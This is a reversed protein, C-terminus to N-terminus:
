NDKMEKRTGKKKEKWKRKNEGAEEIKRENEREGKSVKAGLEQPKGKKWPSKSELEFIKEHWDLCKKVRSDCSRVWTKVKGKSFSVPAVVPGLM